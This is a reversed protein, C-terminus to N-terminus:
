TFLNCGRLADCDSSFSFAQNKFILPFIHLTNGKLEIRVIVCLVPTSCGMEIPQEVQPLRMLLPEHRNLAAYNKVTRKSKLFFAHRNAMNPTGNVFPM